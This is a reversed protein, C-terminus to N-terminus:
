GQLTQNMANTLANQKKREHYLQNYKLLWEVIAKKGGGKGSPYHVMEGEDDCPPDPDPDNSMLYDRRLWFEIMYEHAVSQIVRRPQKQAKKRDLMDLMVHLAKKEKSMSKKPLLTRCIGREKPINHDNPHREHHPRNRERFMAKVLPKDSDEGWGDPNRENYLSMKRAIGRNTMGESGKNV